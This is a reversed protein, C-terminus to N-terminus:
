NKLEILQDLKSIYFIKNFIAVIKSFFIEWVYNIALELCHRDSGTVSAELLSILFTM